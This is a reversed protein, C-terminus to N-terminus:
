RVLGPGPRSPSASPSGKFWAARIDGMAHIDGERTTDRLDFQEFTVSTAM